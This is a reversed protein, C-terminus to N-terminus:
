LFLTIIGSSVLLLLVSSGTPVASNCLDTDCCKIPSVCSAKNTCGKYVVGDLVFSTCRDMNAPCTTTDKCPKGVCIYCRLGWAASLTMFLILAGYFKM